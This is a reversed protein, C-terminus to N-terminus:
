KRVLKRAVLQGCRTWEEDSAFYHRPFYFVQGPGQYVVVLSASRRYRRFLDWPLEAKSIGEVNWTIGDDSVMGNVPQHLLKNNRWHRWVGIRHSLYAAPGILVFPFLSQAVQRPSSSHAWDIAPALLAAVVLVIGQVALISWFVGRLALANIRRFDNETLRGSFRVENMNIGIREEIV